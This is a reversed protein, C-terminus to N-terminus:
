ALICLLRSVLLRSVFLLFTSFVGPPTERCRQVHYSCAKPRQPPKQLRDKGFLTMFPLCPLGACGQDEHIYPPTILRFCQVCSVQFCWGKHSQSNRLKESVKANHLCSLFSGPGLAIM